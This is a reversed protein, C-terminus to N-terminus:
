APFFLLMGLNERELMEKWCDELTQIAMPSSMKLIMESQETFKDWQASAVLENKLKESIVITFPKLTNQNETLFSMKDQGQILLGNKGSVSIDQGNGSILGCAFDEADVLKQEQLRDILAEPPIGEQIRNKLYDRLIFNELRSVPAEWFIVNGGPLPLVQINGVLRLRDPFPVTEGERPAAGSLFHEIRNWRSERIRAEHDGPSSSEPVPRDEGKHNRALLFFYSIILLGVVLSFGIVIIRGRDQETEVRNQMNEERKKQRLRQEEREVEYSARQLDIERVQNKEKMVNVLELHKQLHDYAEKYNGKAKYAESIMNYADSMEKTLNNKSAVDLSIKYYKIAEDFKDQYFNWDGLNYYSESIGLPEDLEIRLQLAKRFNELSLDLDGTEFHAIAINNYANAKGTKSSNKLALELAKEYYTIALAMDGKHMYIKALYDYGKKIARMLKQKRAKDIFSLVESEALELRNERIYVEALNLQAMYSENDPGLKEATKISKVLWGAAKNYESTYIYAIGLLNQADALKEMDGKRTYYDICENLYSISIDTKGETNYYGGLILKGYIMLPQNDDEIGQKLLYNGLVYASDASMDSYIDRLRAATQMRTQPHNHLEKRLKALESMDQALLVGTFLLPILFLLKRM